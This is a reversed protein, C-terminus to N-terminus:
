KLCLRLFAKFFALRGEGHPVAAYPSVPCILADVPRLTDTQSETAEWRDFYAKRLERREKHLQWLQYVSLPKRPRRFPPIELPDADPKMSNILPEGSTLAAQYDAGGDSLFISRQTPM